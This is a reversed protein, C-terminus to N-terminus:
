RSASAEAIAQELLDSVGLEASWRRLHSLDLAASTRLVGVVDAWQRESVEGGKRFWELKALVTDEASAVLFSRTAGVDALQDLAARQLAQRDFPRQKPVFVDIKFMTRLHILNFSRRTEIAARVRGEDVYYADALRELFPAVHQPELDAVLDGDISTRPVGHVSSALSGGVMYRVGLTELAEVVPQLAGVLDAATV